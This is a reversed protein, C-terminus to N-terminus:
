LVLGGAGGGSGLQLDGGGEAGDGARWGRHRQHRPNGDRVGCFVQTQGSPWEPERHGKGKLGRMLAAM